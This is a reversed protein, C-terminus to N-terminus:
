DEIKGETRPSFLEVLSQAGSDREAVDEFSCYERLLQTVNQKLVLPRLQGLLREPTRVHGGERGSHIRWSSLLLTDQEWVHDSSRGFWSGFWKEAPIEMHVGARTYDRDRALRDTKMWWFGISTDDWHRVVAIKCGVDTDAFRGWDLQLDLDPNAFSYGAQLWAMWHWPDEGTAYWDGYRRNSLNYYVLKGDALSAFNEPHRDRQAALRTGLWGHGLYWRGWLNLGFYEEDLWGAEAMLWVGNRGGTLNKVYLAAAQQLRIKDNMDPEWWIDVNNYLPFRVDVYAGWGKSYRGQYILDLSWRNQYDDDLTQDLRPEYVFMAKVTHRARDALLGSRYAGEQWAVLGGDGSVSAAENEEALVPSFTM